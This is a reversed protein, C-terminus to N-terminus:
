GFASQYSGHHIYGSQRSSTVLGSTPNIAIGADDDDLNVASVNFTRGNYKSDASSATGNVTYAQDGDDIWDNQGTLTVTQATNWNATTFTLTTPSVSAEAPKTSTLTITVNATPRSNLRVTFTSTGGAETTQLGSTPNVTIGATDDNTNVVNVDSPNLNNYKAM